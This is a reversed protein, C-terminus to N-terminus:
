GRPENSRSTKQRRCLCVDSSHVPQINCAKAAFSFLKNFIEECVLGCRISIRIIMSCATSNVALWAVGFDAKHTMLGGDVRVRVQEANMLMTVLVAIITDLLVGAAQLVERMRM